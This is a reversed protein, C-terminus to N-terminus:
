QEITGLTKFRFICQSVFELTTNRGGIMEGRGQDGTERQRDWGPRGRASRLRLLQIITFLLGGHHASARFTDNERETKDLHFTVGPNLRGILVDKTQACFFIKGLDSSCM